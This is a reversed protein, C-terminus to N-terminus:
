KAEPSATNAPERSRSERVVMTEDSFFTRRGTVGPKVPEAFITYSNGNATVRFRYGGAEGKALEPVLQTLSSAYRGHRSYYDVQATQLTHIERIVASAGADNVSRSVLIWLTVTAIATLALIRM